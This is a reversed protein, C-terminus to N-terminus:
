KRKVYGFYFFVGFLILNVLSRVGLLEQPITYGLFSLSVNNMYLFLNAFFSAATFGSLFKFIERWNVKVDIVM